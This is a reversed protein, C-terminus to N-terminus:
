IQHKTSKRVGLLRLGEALGPTMMSFGANDIRELIFAADETAKDVFYAKAMNPKDTADMKGLLEKPSPELFGPKYGGDQAAMLDKRAANWDGTRYEQRGKKYLSKPDMGAAVSEPVSFWAM